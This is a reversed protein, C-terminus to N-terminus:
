PSCVRLEYLIDPCKEENDQGDSFAIAQFGFREYFRRAGTNQQFTYLRIPKELTRIAEELLKTGIGHGVMSPTVYLQEIWSTGKDRSIAIMGLVSDDEEYVTVGGTPILVERVWQLVEVETHALPAYPMFAKRTQILIEAVADGDSLDAKRLPGM